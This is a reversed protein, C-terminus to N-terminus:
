MLCFEFLQISKCFSGHTIKLYPNLECEILPQSFPKMVIKIMNVRLAIDFISCNRTDQFSFLNWLQKEHFDLFVYSNFIVELMLSGYFILYM